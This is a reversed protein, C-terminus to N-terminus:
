RSAGCEEMASQIEEQVSADTEHAVRVHLAARADAGGTRGLAWAAHSRVLPSSDDLAKALAPIAAPDRRNGLAVCVNRLFGNRGARRVPSGQFRAEFSPVDLDLFEALDGEFRGEDIRFRPESAPVAFRNWPCVEQCIDCGFIWEGIQARLERPIPGELEITLYSICRRADVVYPAVIAQTPCAVICDVCKGCRNKAARETEPALDITTLIESLFFWSGRDDTLLNTNKGIWGLGAREAWEREMVPKFDVASISKSGPAAEDLFRVLKALRRGLVRHYDSGWAYRSIRGIWRRSEEPPDTSYEALLSIMTRAGSLIRRPDGREKERRAMWDMEGHRGRDIWERLRSADRAPGARVFGVRSFGLARARESFSQRLSERESDSPLFSPLKM